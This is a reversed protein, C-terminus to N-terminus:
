RTGGSLEGWTLQFAEWDGDLNRGAEIALRQNVHIDAIVGPLGSGFYRTDRRLFFTEEGERTHLTITREDVSAVVGSVNRNGHRLAAARAPRTPTTDIRAARTPKAPPTVNLTLIYCQADRGKRYVIVELSDGSRLADATVRQKNIEFYSKADFGCSYAARNADLARLIGNTVRGDWTEFSGRFMGNPMEAASAVSLVAFLLLRGMAPDNYQPRAVISLKVETIWRAASQSKVEPM